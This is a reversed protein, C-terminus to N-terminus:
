QARQEKRKQKVADSKKWLFVAYLFEHSNLLVSVGRSKSNLTIERLRKHITKTTEEHM